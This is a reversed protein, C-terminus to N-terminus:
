VFEDSVSGSGGSRCAFGRWRSANPRERPPSEVLSWRAASLRHRGKPNMVVRPCRWSETAKSSVGRGPRPEGIHGPAYVGAAATIPRAFRVTASESM